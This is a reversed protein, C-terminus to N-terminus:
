KGKRPKLRSNPLGVLKLAEATVAQYEAEAARVSSRRGGPMDMLVTHQSAADSHATLNRTITQAVSFGQERLEDRRQEALTVREHHPHVKSIVILYPIGLPIVVDHLQRVLPRLDLVDIGTPFLLADVIPEDHDTLLAELAKAEKAGPLDAVVLDWRPNGKLKVMLPRDREDHMPFADFPMANGAAKALDFASENGDADGLAVKLRQVRAAFTAVNVATTTKTVGGKPGAVALVKARRNAPQNM